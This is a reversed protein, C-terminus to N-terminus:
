LNAVRTSHQQLSHAVNFRQHFMFWAAYMGDLKSSKRDLKQAVKAQLETRDLGGQIDDNLRAIKDPSFCCM